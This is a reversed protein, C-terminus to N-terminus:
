DSPILTIHRPGAGVAAKWPISRDFTALVGHHRVAAALLALSM